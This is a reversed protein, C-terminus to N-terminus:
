LKLVQVASVNGNITFKLTYTGPQLFSFNYPIYQYGGQRTGNFVIGRLKGNIDV